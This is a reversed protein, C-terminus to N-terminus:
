TAQCSFTGTVDPSKRPQAGLSVPAASSHRSSRQSPRASTSASRCAARKASARPVIPTSRAYLEAEADIGAQTPEPEGDSQAEASQAAASKAAAPTQDRAPVSIEQFWYGAREMAAPHMAAEAKERDAQMRQYDRLLSRMQRMTATAQARCRLTAAALDSRHQAALRHCDMVGAEAAVIDAALKAELADAPHLAAVAAMATDDRDARTEPTDIVPPPLSGCLTAFVERAVAAPLNPLTHM